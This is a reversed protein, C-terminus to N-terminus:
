FIFSNIKKYDYFTTKLLLLKKKNIIFIVYLKLGLYIYKSVLKTFNM